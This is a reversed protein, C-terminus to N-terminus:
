VSASTLARISVQTYAVGRGGIVALAALYGPPGDLDRLEVVSPPRADAWRLVAPSDVPSDVPASLLISRPDVRLGSGLAKLVAEKRVWTRTAGAADAPVTEDPHLAVGAFGAFDAAGTREVDIGITGTLSAAAAVVGPARSLSLALSGNPGDVFPVGHTTEGCYPCAHRLAGADTGTLRRALELALRHAPDAAVFRRGM